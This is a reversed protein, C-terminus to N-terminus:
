VKLLECAQKYGPAPFGYESAVVRALAVLHRWRFAARTSHFDEAVTRYYKEAHLAGDESISYKLLMDFAPRPDHGQEGYRQVNAACLNLDREKLAGEANRLLTAADKSTVKARVDAEPQLEKLEGGSQGATHYAGVILSAVTNRANSVRAINRWANAADAGHVGVGAGHISGEPKGPQIQTGTRGPMCLVLKTAALSMAEGIADPAFGEALAAAVAEAGQARNSRYITDALRLLWADDAVKAGLPRGVLKYQDLLKPLLASIESSGSKGGEHICFRVSQRLLTHANEKGVLDLTAWARWALVTRHVDVEQQVTPLMSNYADAIPGKAMAAFIRESANVDRKRAAECLDESAAHDKPLDGAAIPHLVERKGGENQIFSTNRYLVKLVPLAQREAPLERSMQYSPLLAMFAHYGNYNEGGFTRANALAGAAVLDELKTGAKLKEALVPLLQNAPTDQMLGVLPERDGFTLRDAGEAASASVLGLEFALAPGVSAVLMGKGVDALFERRNRHSM